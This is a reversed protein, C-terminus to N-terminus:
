NAYWEFVRGPDSVFVLWFLAYTAAFVIVFASPQRIRGAGLGRALLLVALAVPSFIAAELLWRVLDHHLTFGLQKPDPRYPQPWHGLVISARLAYGYLTALAVCPLTAACVFLLESVSAPRRATSAKM